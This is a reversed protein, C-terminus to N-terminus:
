LLIKNIVWFKFKLTPNWLSEPSKKTKNQKLRLLIQWNSLDDQTKKKGKFAVTFRGM